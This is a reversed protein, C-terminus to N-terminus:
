KKELREWFLCKVIQFGGIIIFMIPIFIWFRMRKIVEIFSSVEGMQFAIIGIGVIVCVIGVYLGLVNINVKDFVGVAYLFFLVFVMGGLLFFAGFYILVNGSNTGVLVAESPDNPNYKIERSSNIDPISGSGYDTKITYEKGDIEYVYTLRYTQQDEKEHSSYLEYNKYYGTTTLYNEINKNTHHTDRIGIALCASGVLLVCIVLFSPVVIGLNIKKKTQKSNPKIGLLHKWFIYMEFIWLPITFLIPFYQKEKMWTYNWVTLFGFGFLLFIIVFLKHFIKAGLIKNTFACLNEAIYCVTMLMFSVIMIRLSLQENKTFVFMLLLFAFIARIINTTFIRKKM